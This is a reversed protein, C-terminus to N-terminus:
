REISTEDAGQWQQEYYREAYGNSILVIRHQEKAARIVEDRILDISKRQLQERTTM